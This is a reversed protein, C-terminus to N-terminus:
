YDQPNDYWEMYTKWVLELQHGKVLIQTVAFRRMDDPSKMDKCCIKLISNQLGYSRSELDSKGNM